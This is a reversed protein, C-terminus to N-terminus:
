AVEERPARRKAIVLFTPAMAQAVGGAILRDPAGVPVLGVFYPQGHLVWGDQELDNLARELGGGNQAAVVRWELRDM